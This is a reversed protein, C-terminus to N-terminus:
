LLIYIEVQSHIQNNSLPQQSVYHEYPGLM